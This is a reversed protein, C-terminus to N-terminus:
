RFNQQKHCSCAVLESGQVDRSSDFLGELNSWKIGNLYVKGQMSRRSRRTMVVVFCLWTAYTTILVDECEERRTSIVVVDHNALYFCMMMLLMMLMM